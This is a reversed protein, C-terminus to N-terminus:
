NTFASYANIGVFFYLFWAYPNRPDILMVAIERYDVTSEKTEDPLRSGRRAFLTRQGSHRRRLTPTHGLFKSMQCVLAESVVSTFILTIAPLWICLLRRSVM